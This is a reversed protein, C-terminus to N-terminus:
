VEKGPLTFTGGRERVVEGQPNYFTVDVDKNGSRELVAYTPQPFERPMTISGPNILLINGSQECVPVHSHGFCAVQAGTEEARYRLPLFSSKVQHRHGHTVFFRVGEKEWWDELPKDEWDCNGQVVTMPRSPLEEADTSFDGCHIIHDAAVEEAIRKLRDGDGHSDSIILVRM